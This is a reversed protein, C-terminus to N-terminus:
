QISANVSAYGAGSVGTQCWVPQNYWPYYGHRPRGCHPCYGCHPCTGSYPYQYTGTGYAGVTGSQIDGSQIDGTWQSTQGQTQSGSQWDKQNGVGTWNNAPSKQYAQLEALNEGDM